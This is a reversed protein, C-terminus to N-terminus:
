RRRRGPRRTVTLPTSDVEGAAVSLETVSGALTGNVLTVPIAVAFPAGALVKARVQDTGM